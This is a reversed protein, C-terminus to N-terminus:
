EEMLDKLSDIVAKQAEKKLLKFGSCGVSYHKGGVTTTIKLELIM